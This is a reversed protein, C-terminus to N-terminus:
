VCCFMPVYFDLLSAEVKASMLIEWHGRSTGKKLERLSELVIESGKKTCLRVQWM